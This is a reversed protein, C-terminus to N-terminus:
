AADRFGKAPRGAEFRTAGAPVARSPPPPVNEAGPELSEEWGGLSSQRASAAGGPRKECKRGSIQSTCAPIKTKPTQCALNSSGTRAGLKRQLLAAFQHDRSDFQAPVNIVKKKKIESNKAQTRSIWLERSNDSNNYNSSKFM